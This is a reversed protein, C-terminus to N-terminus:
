PRASGEQGTGGVQVIFQKVEKRQADVEAAQKKKLEDHIRFEDTAMEREGLRDYAVGLRYHAETSEEDAAIAQRYFDSAAKFDGRSANLVGLQLYAESCKPDAKVVRQLHSEVVDLIEPDVRKGHEKWYSIAYYLNAIPNSPQMQVFRQLKTEVCPLSNPAAIEVKGMFIYPKPDTPLLDSAECLRRAAEEYLAGGFLAAGLATMMRASHPYAKAGSEFVEKSQWIARHELLESGWAFYNEESPDEKAAREFERVASLSDGSKEAIEGSLRHWEPNDSKSLLHRLHGRAGALDGSRALAISLGYENRDNAADLSYATQLPAVADSYRELALYLRGLEENAKLDGPSEELAARLERESAPTLASTPEPKLRVTERNLAESARLNTDSGHGGAATWDTVAAVTFKPADSYEMQTLEGSGWASSLTLEVRQVAGDSALTVTVESSHREGKSASLVYTGTKLSPFGFSGSADTKREEARASGQAQLRVSADNVSGSGDRVTGTISSRGDGHAQSFGMSAILLSSGFLVGISRLNSM